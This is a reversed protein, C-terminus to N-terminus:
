NGSHMEPPNSSKQKPVSIRLVGNVYASSARAIDFGSPLELVSEFPGAPIENVLMAKAAAFEPNRRHGAIRLKGKEATVQLDGNQIGCIDLQIILHGSQSVFVNTSPIWFFQRGSAPSM